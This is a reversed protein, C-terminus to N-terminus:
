EEKNRRNKMTEKTLCNQIGEVGGGAPHTSGWINSIRTHTAPFPITKLGKLRLYPGTILAISFQELIPDRKIPDSM